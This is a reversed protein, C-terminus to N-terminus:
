IGLCLCGGNKVTFKNRCVSSHTWYTLRLRLCHGIVSTVNVEVLSMVPASLLVMSKKTDRAMEVAPVHWSEVVAAVVTVVLVALVGDAAVVVTNLTYVVEELKEVIV